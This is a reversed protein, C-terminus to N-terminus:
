PRLLVRGFGKRSLIYEYAQVVDALPFVRDIDIKLKGTAVLNLSDSVMAHSRAHEVEFTRPMYVGHLSNCNAWLTLPNFGERDRGSVGVFIARGGYKLSAVSLPLTKGAISDIVLDAGAGDTHKKVVETFQEHTNNITFDAGYNKLREFKADDSSTTFVTAGARKAMQIAALGLAGSGGHILVSQGKQLGGVAFLCESATAFAVPIASAIDIDLGEPLLWTMAAPASVYEAHSGWKVICVVRQGVLRDKVSAGVEVIEGACQYGVIHPTNIPPVIERSIHDGGEISIALVKIVVGEPECTPQPVDEIRFVEPGGNKYYVAAKM